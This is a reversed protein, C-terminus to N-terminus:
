PFTEPVVSSASTQAVFAPRGGVQLVFHTVAALFRGALAFTRLSRWTGDYTLNVRTSRFAFSNRDRGARTDM